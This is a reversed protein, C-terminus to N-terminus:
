AGVGEGCSTAYHWQTAGTFRVPGRGVTVYDPGYIRHLLFYLSYGVVFGYCIEIKSNKM